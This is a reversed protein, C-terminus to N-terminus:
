QSGGTQHRTGSAVPHNGHPYEPDKQRRRYNELDNLRNAGGPAPTGRGWSLAELLLDATLGYADGGEWRLVPNVYRYGEHEFADESLSEPLLLTEVDAVLIEAVELPNAVLEPPSSVWGVIPVVHHGAGSWADDLRGLVEVSAPALGIEEQAERLAAQEWSEGPDLRGGPFAVQGGHASLRSSRRTVVVRVADGAAWFPILVAAQRYDNPVSAAPFLLPEYAGLARLAREFQSAFSL